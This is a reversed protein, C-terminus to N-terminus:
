QTSPTTLRSGGGQQEDLEALSFGVEREREKEDTRTSCEPGWTGPRTCFTSGPRHDRGTKTLARKTRDTM